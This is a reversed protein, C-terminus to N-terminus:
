PQEEQLEVSRNKEEGAFVKKFIQKELFAHRMQKEGRKWITSIIM